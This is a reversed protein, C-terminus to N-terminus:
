GAARGVLLRRLTRAQDESLPSQTFDVTFVRVQRRGNETLPLTPLSYRSCVFRIVLFYPCGIRFVSNMIGIRKAETAKANSFGISRQAFATPPRSLTAAM